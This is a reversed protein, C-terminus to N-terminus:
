RETPSRRDRRTGALQEESIANPAGENRRDLRKVLEALMADVVTLFFAQQDSAMETSFIVSIQNKQPTGAPEKKKKQIRNLSSHAAM